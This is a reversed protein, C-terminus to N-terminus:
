AEEWKGLTRLFAEARQSATAKLLKRWSEAPSDEDADTGIYEAMDALQEDNLTNNEAQYMANLDNLVDPGDLWCENANRHWPYLTTDTPHRLSWCSPHDDDSVLYWGWAKLIAIRQAETHM